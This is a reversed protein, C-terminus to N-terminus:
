MMSGDSGGGSCSGSCVAKQFTAISRPYRLCYANCVHMTIMFVHLDQMWVGNHACKACVQVVHLTCVMICLVHVSQVCRYSM